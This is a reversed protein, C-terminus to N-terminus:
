GFIIIEGGPIRIGLRRTAGNWFGQLGRVVLQEVFGRREGGKGNIWYISGAGAVFGAM